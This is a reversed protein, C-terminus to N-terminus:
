NAASGEGQDFVSPDFKGGNTTPCAKAFATFTKDKGPLALDYTKGKVKLMVPVGSVAANYLRKSVANSFPVIKSSEPHYQFKEFKKQGDVTLAVTVSLLRLRESPDEEYTNAPDLQIAANLSHKGTSMAQCNLILVPGSGGSSRITRSYSYFNTANGPDSDDVRILSDRDRTWSLTGSSVTEAMAAQALLAAGALIGTLGWTRNIVM